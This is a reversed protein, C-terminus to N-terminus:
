FLGNDSIKRSIRNVTLLLIIDIISSFLSVATSYSFSNELLGRRYVYTGLVDAVPMTNGNYLLLVKDTNSGLMGGCRLILMISITGMIGPLTVYRVQQWRNAGDLVAVEYLETNVGSLAALYIIAGWGVGQWIGSGVFVTSFLSPDNLIPHRQGGLLVILDNILGNRSLFNTLMGCVVMTSLFHPLYSVTQIARKFRPSRIENLLLALIIPAPFGFILDLVNLRLTNGLVQWFYEDNLFKEFWKFGVGPSKMIGLRVNFQKFAITVGYMPIYKFIIYYAVPLLLMLYLWKSRKIRAWRNPRYHRLDATKTSM